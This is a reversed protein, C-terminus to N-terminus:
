AADPGAPERDLSARRKKRGSRWAEIMGVLWLVGLTWIEVGLRLGTGAGGPVTMLADGIVSLMVCAIFTVLGGRGIVALARGVVTDALRAMPGALPVAVLWAAVLIGIYRVWDLSWKDVSGVLDRLVYWIEKVEPGYRWLQAFALGFIVYIVAFINLATAHRRLVPMFQRRYLGMMVGTHFLLQWAFPNFLMGNTQGRQNPLMENLPVSVAWLAVSAAAFAWPWRLMLPVTIPTFALVVVYLALVDLLNPQMWLTAVTVIYGVPFDVIWRAYASWVATHRLGAEFLGRSLLALLIGGIVLALWVQVARRLFRWQAARRGDRQEVTLWVLGVLFGSLLVFLEAADFVAFNALTYKRLVGDPMHDIMIAALAYGRLMDLAAIRKM